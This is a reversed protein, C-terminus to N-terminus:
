GFNSPRCSKLGLTPREVGDEIRSAASKRAVSPDSDGIMGAILLGISAAAPAEAADVEDVRRSPGDAAEDEETRKSCPRLWSWALVERSLATGVSKGVSSLRPPDDEPSM